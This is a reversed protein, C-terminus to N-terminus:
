DQPVTWRLARHGALHVPTRSHLKKKVFHQRAVHYSPDFGYFNVQMRSLEEERYRALPKAAEDAIRRQHKAALQQLYTDASALADAQQRVRAVFSAPSDGFCADALGLRTAEQHGLPLRNKMISLAAQAGARRPLTYTWYESGYLNGMNKYHPSLIVGTRMWVQDAALALFVGGAGANGQLAAIVLQRDTEIIAQCLDDMAQINQWSEDTPSGAAEILNLDLGNSFFDQGGMLVIVRVPRQQAARYAALLRRCAQTGMAGNYFDFHLYGTQGTEEYRIDPSDEGAEPLELAESFLRAVPLKINLADQQRKAHGIWIAGDRTARIVGEALRSVLEGPKGQAPHPRANYLHCPEGFLTDSVGPYGDSSNLRAMIEATSDHLWDIQRDAQKMLPRWQGKGNTSAASVPQWRGKQYDPIKELAARVAIVAAETVENRYLSSKKAERMPFPATAWVPGADMEAEAQLVTVGWGTERNRIAWDLASPGRDGIIGPHVILCLHNRWVSEPIARRLYPAIIVHPHFLCVAEETVTDNIDFEVSLTHGCHVLESYLRQTLSNFSHALFLIRM